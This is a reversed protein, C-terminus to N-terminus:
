NYEQFWIDDARQGTPETASYVFDHMADFRTREEPTIHMTMDAEHSELERTLAAIIDEEHEESSAGNAAEATVDIYVYPSSVKKSIQGDMYTIVVQGVVTGERTLAQTLDFKVIAPNMSEYPRIANIDFISLEPNEAQGRVGKFSVEANNPLVYDEEHDKLLVRLYRSHDDYQQAKIVPYSTTTYLDLELVHTIDGAM